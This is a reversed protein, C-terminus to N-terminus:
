ALLNTKIYKTCIPLSHLQDIRKGKGRVEVGEMERREKEVLEGGKRRTRKYETSPLPILDLSNM